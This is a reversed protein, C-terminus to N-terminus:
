LALSLTTKSKKVRYDEIQNMFYTVRVAWTPSAAYKPGIIYPDSYQGKTLYNESLGKSITEIGDNWSNFRKVNTGYVGWGWGNYSDYPIHKGFSSELGAISAVLRWDLNYKDANEIFVQAYPALPSKKEELYERLVTARNDENKLVIASNLSASSKSAQDYAYTDQKSILVLVIFTISTIIKKM